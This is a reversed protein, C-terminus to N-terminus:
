NNFREYLVEGNNLVLKYKDFADDITLLAKHNLKYRKSIGLTYVAFLHKAKNNGFRLYANIKDANKSFAIERPMGAQVLIELYEFSDGDDFMKKVKKLIERATENPEESIITQYFSENKCRELSEKKEIKDKASKSNAAFIIGILIIGIIIGIEM